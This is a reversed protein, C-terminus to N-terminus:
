AKMVDPFRRFMDCGKENDVLGDLITSALPNAVASYNYLVQAAAIPCPLKGLKCQACQNEFFEAECGNSFYAM